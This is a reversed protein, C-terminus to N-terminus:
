IAVATFFPEISLMRCFFYVKQLREIYWGVYTGLPYHVHWLCRLLLPGFLGLWLDGLRRAWRSLRTGLRFRVFEIEVYVNGIEDLFGLIKCLVVLLLAALLLAAPENMAVKKSPPKKMLHLGECEVTTM